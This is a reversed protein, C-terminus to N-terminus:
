ELEGNFCSIFPKLNTDDPIAFTVLNYPSKAFAKAIKEGVVKPDQRFVGCGWAGLIIERADGSSLYAIDRLFEVRSELVKTNEEDTFANYRFMLSRNPAACTIVDAVTTNGDKDFFRVNPTYIARDTYLGRNLHERNWNYYDMLEKLVNYLFSDHCLAEEQASSGDIFRGGPNKYSAFNLIVIHEESSNFLAEQTTRKSVKFSSEKYKDLDITKTNVIQREGNVEKVVIGNPDKSWIISNKIADRIEESYQEQMEKTHEVAKKSLAEKRNWYHANSM